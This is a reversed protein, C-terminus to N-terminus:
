KQISHSGFFCVQGALSTVATTTLVQRLSATEVRLRAPSTTRGCSRGGAGAASPVGGGGGGPNAVRRGGAVSSRREPAPPRVGAEPGSPAHEEVAIMLNRMGAKTASTAPGVSISGHETSLAPFMVM